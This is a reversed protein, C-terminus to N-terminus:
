QFKSKKKCSPAPRTIVPCLKPAPTAVMSDIKNLGLYGSRMHKAYEGGPPNSLYSNRIFSKNLKDPKIILHHNGENGM